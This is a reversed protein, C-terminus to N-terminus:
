REARSGARESDIQGRIRMVEYLGSVQSRGGKFQENVRAFEADTIDALEGNEDYSCAVITGFLITYLEGPRVVHSYDLQSLYGARAMEDTAYVARNPMLGSVLGEDNVYLSPNCGFLVDMPEICGDVLDQLADLYSGDEGAEITEITPDCMPRIVAVKRSM